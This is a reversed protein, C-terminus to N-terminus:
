MNIKCKPCFDSPFWLDSEHQKTQTFCHIWQQEDAHVCDTNTDSWEKENHRMKRPRGFMVAVDGM